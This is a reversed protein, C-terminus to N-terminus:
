NIQVGEACLKALAVGSVTCQTERMNCLMKCSLVKAVFHIIYDNISLILFGINERVLDYMDKVKEIM